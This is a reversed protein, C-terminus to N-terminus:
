VKEVYEIKDNKHGDVITRIIEKDSLGNLRDAIEKIVDMDIGNTNAAMESTIAKLSDCLEDFSTKRSRIKYDILENSAIEIETWVSLSTTAREIKEFWTGSQSMKFIEKVMDDSIEINTFYKLIVYRRALERYEPRYSDDQFCTDAITQVAAAYADADLYTKIEVEMGNIKITKNELAFNKGIVDAFKIKNM